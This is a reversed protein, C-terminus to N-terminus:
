HQIEFKRIPILHAEWGGDRADLYANIVQRISDSQSGKREVPFMPGNKNYVSAAAATEIEPWQIGVWSGMIPYGNGNSSKRAAIYVRCAKIFTENDAYLWSHKEYFGHPAPAPKWPQAWSIFGHTHKGNPLLPNPPISVCFNLTKYYQIWNTNWSLGTSFSYHKPDILPNVFALIEDKEKKGDASDFEQRKAIEYAIATSYVPFPTKLMYQTIYFGYVMDRIINIYKDGDGGGLLEKGFCTGNTHGSDKKCGVRKQSNWVTMPLLVKSDKSRCVGYVSNIEGGGYYNSELGSIMVYRFLFNDRLEKPAKDLVIAGKLGEVGDYLTAAMLYNLYGLANLVRAKYVAVSLASNDAVNQMIMRDTLLKAINLMMAWSIVLVVMMVLMYPMAQGESASLAPAAQGGSGRRIHAQWESAKAFSPGKYSSLKKSILATKTHKIM